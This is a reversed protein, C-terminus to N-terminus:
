EVILGAVQGEPRTWGGFGELYRVGKEGMKKLAVRRQIFGRGILYNNFKQPTVNGVHSNFFTYEAGVDKAAQMISNFFLDKWQKEKMCDLYNQNGEVSDVLLVKEDNGDTCLVLIAVGIIEIEKPAQGSETIAAKLQLLGIYPDAAYDLSAHKNVGSPYFACCMTKESDFLDTVVGSQMKAIVHNFKLPATFLSKVGMVLDALPEVKEPAGRSAFEIFYDMVREAANKDKLNRVAAMDKEIDRFIKTPKIDSTYIYNRAKKLQDLVFFTSLTAQDTKEPDRSLLYTVLMNVLEVPESLKMIGVVHLDGYIKGLPYVKEIPRSFTQTIREKDGTEFEVCALKLLGEIDGQPIFGFENKVYDHVLNEKTFKEGELTRMIFHQFLKENELLDPWEDAYRIIGEIMIPWTRENLMKKVFPLKFLNYLYLRQKIQITYLRIFDRVVTQWPLKNIIPMREPFVLEFLLTAYDLDVNKILEVFGPWREETIIYTCKPFTKSFFIDLPYHYLSESKKAIMMDIFGKFIMPWTQENLIHEISPLASKFLYVFSDTENSIKHLEAADEWHRVLFETLDPHKETELFWDDLLQIRKKRLDETTKHEVLNKLALIFQNIATIDSKNVVGRSHEKKIFELDEHLKQLLPAIQDFLELEDLHKQHLEWIDAMLEIDIKNLQGIREEFKSADEESLFGYIKLDNIHDQLRENIDQHLRRWIKAIITM